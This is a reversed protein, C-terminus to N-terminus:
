KIRSSHSPDIPRILNVSCKRYMYIYLRISNIYETFVKWMITPKRVHSLTNKLVAVNMRPKLQSLM